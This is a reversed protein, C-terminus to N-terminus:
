FVSILSDLLRELVFFVVIIGKRIPKNWRIPRL